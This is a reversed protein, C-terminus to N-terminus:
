FVHSIGVNYGTSRGNAVNTTTAAFGGLSTTSNNKNKLSAVTVYLATRKSMDYIYGIAFKSYKRDPDSATLDIESSNYSARLRGPGVPAVAGIEYTKVKIVTAGTATISGTEQGFNGMLKVVGFDYSAGGVVSKHDASTTGIGTLGRLAGIAGAAGLANSANNGNNFTTLDAGGKIKSYAVEAALPGQTYNLRVAASKGASTTPEEDFGVQAHGQFGAIRPTSYTISNNNWIANQSATAFPSTNGQGTVAFALARSAFGVGNGVGGTGFASYLFGAWFAPNYERGLRVEGFGGSLGVWAGRDGLFSGQPPDSSLRTDVQFNAKLGGGLDETGRFGLRSTTMNSASLGTNDIGAGSNNVSTFGVDVVGYLTVSSQAMAAGTSALAALAILTKKM